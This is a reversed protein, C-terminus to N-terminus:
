SRPPSLRRIPSAEISGLARLEARGVAGATKTATDHEGGSGGRRPMAKLYERLILGLTDPLAADTSHNM